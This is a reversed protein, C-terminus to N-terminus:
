LDCVDGLQGWDQNGVCHDIDLIDISPLFNNIPDTATVERYGPLFPGRYDNRQVFTHTTDGFTQITATVVYGNSDKAVTSASVSTAGRVLSADYVAAADDVEFAVDKVADGHKELHAHIEAVLTKEETSYSDDLDELRRLPTLLLFKAHSNAVVYGTIARSGTELGRYAVVQFGMRTVYYSAAQKANGVYWTVHDYGRYNPSPQPQPYQAQHISNQHPEVDLSPM